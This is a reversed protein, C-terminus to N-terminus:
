HQLTLIFSSVLVMLKGTNIIFEEEGRRRAKYHKLM